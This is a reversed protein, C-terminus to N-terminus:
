IKEASVKRIWELFYGRINNELNVLDYRISDAFVHIDGEFDEVTWDPITDSYCDFIYSKDFEALIKGFDKWLDPKPYCNELKDVFDRM